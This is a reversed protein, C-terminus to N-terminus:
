APDRGQGLLRRQIARAHVFKQKVVIRGDHDGRPLEIREEVPCQSFVHINLAVESTTNEVLSRVTNEVEPDRYNAISVFVSPKKSGRATM